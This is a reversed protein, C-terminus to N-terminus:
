LNYKEMNQAVEWEEKYEPYKEDLYKQIEKYSDKPFSGNINDYTYKKIKNYTKIDFKLGNKFYLEFMEIFASSSYHLLNLIISKGMKDKINPDAGADLLKSIISKTSSLLLSTNGDDNQANVNAGAKILIDVIILFSEHCALMLATTGDVDSMNVDVGKKLLEKIKNSSGKQAAWLFERQPSVTIKKAENIYENYKLM